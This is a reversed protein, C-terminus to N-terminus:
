STAPLMMEIFAVIDAVYRESEGLGNRALFERAILAPDDIGPHVPVHVVCLHLL